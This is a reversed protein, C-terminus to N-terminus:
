IGLQLKRRSMVSKLENCGLQLLYSVLLYIMRVRLQLKMGEDWVGGPVFIDSFLQPLLDAQQSKFLVILPSSNVVVRNVLM